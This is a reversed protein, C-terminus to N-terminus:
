FIRLCNSFKTNVSFEYRMYTKKTENIVDIKIYFVKKTKHTRIFNFYLKLSKGHIAWLSRSFFVM